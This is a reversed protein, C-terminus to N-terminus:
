EGRAWKQRGVGRVKAAGFRHAILAGGNWPRGMVWVRIPSQWMARLMAGQDQNEFRRWEERWVEFFEGVEASQRFFMVGAQLQLVDECGCAEYTAERDEEGIHWMRRRGQHESHAIAVDWGDRLVEFGAWMPRRVRTDADIYLTESFPSLQDLYLKALRGGRDAQEMPIHTVGDIVYQDSVVVVPLDPMSAWLSRISMQAEAIAPEGYAVYCAGRSM